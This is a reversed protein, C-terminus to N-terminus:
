RSLDAKHKERQKELQLVEKALARYSLAVSSRPAHSFISKGVAACEAARISRPIHNKYVHLQKGYTERLLGEIEKSFNTRNDVMTLLIGDIQLKPNIHQRIRYVSQLLRELGKAALYESQVPIMVRNAAGLANVTLMGLSPPCDILIHTYRDKLPTLCQRLVTERKGFNILDADIGALQLNTPLLDIGEPLSIIADDLRLPNGNLHNAIVESLTHPLENPHAFGLSIALQGQPDADVLLVKKGEKSLGAGLNVATTTKGIGGKQNAIAIIQANM